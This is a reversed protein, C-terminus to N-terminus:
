LFERLCEFNGVFCRELDGRKNLILRGMDSNRILNLVKSNKPHVEKAGRQHISKEGRVLRDKPM